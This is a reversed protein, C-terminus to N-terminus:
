ARQRRGLGDSDARPLWIEALLAIHDSPYAWGPLRAADMEGAEPALLVRSVQRGAPGASASGDAPPV